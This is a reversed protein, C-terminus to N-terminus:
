SRIRAALPSDESLQGISKAVQTGDALTVPYKTFIMTRGQVVRESIPIEKGSDTVYMHNGGSSRLTFRERMVEKLLRSVEEKQENTLTGSGAEPDDEFQNITRGDSLTYRYQLLRHDLRGNVETEQAGVLEKRGQQILSDMEEATEVAQQPTSATKPSFTWSKRGDETVVIQRGSEDTKFFHYKYNVGVAAAVVGTGILAAIAMKTLSIRM